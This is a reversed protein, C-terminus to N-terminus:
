IADSLSSFNFDNVKLPPVFIQLNEIESGVAKEARGLDVLNSLVNVPSENFRFNKVSRYIKGDKIEFLGDRTLGTLLMTKREVTRIYWFRTVLVASETESVLKKLSKAGGKMILNSPYPVVPAGKEQAWFRPRHLNALVGNEIWVIKTRPYGEGTFPISPAKPDSPDSYITVKENALKEGIINGGGKKTFFSRGEDAARAGMFNLAFGIMDAAASPELIVTYRGPKLEAPKASLISKNIVVDSLRRSNLDKINVYSKEVRSSGTGDKTRVTSSFNCGTSKNYAFLGSSTMVATFSVGNSFYGASIVGTNLSKQIIYELYGARKIHNLGDTDPSYNAAKQYEQPALLPMFELNDPSLKAIEESKEVAERISKDDFKNLEANGSKKGINSTISVTLGDAFGNTTLSNLAFRLNFDNSGTLTASVSDAKSFSLVKVLLNRAENESLIV